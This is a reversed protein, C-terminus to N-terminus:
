SRGLRGGAGERAAAAASTSVANAPCFGADHDQVLQGDSADYTCFFDNPNEGPFAPYSCFIPDTTEDHEGLTFGAGDQAPCHQHPPPAVATGPCFGADHDQVLLGDGADYSCFFDNPNEGPFAPYSCFIPDTSEDHEGLPFGAQDQAPCTFGPPPSVVHNTFTVTAETGTTDLTVTVSTGQTANGSGGGTVSIDATVGQTTETITGSAASGDHQLVPVATGTQCDRNGNANTPSLTFAAPLGLDSATFDFGDGILGPSDTAASKCVTVTARRIQNAFTM